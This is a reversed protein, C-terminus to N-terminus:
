FNYFAKYLITILIPHHQMEGKFFYDRIQYGGDYSLIAPYFALLTPIWCVIIILFYIGWKYKKIELRKKPKETRRKNMKIKKVLEMISYHLMVFIISLLIIKLLSIILDNFDKISYGKEQLNNGFVFQISIIIWFFCIYKFKRESLIEKIANNLKKINEKTKDIFRM